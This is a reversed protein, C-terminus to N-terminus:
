RKKECHAYTGSVTAMLNRHTLMVGKVRGTTGSLYLIVVLNSQSVEVHDITQVSSRMMLDFKPSNLVITKFCLSINSLKHASSSTAFTIVPNCLQILSSIESETSLPNALSIVIGLSKPNWIKTSFSISLHLSATALSFILFFHSKKKKLKLLLKRLKKLLFFFFFFWFSTKKAWKIASSLQPRVSYRISLM